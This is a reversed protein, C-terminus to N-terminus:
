SCEVTISWKLENIEPATGHVTTSGNVYVRLDLDLYTPSASSHPLKKLKEFAEIANSEYCKHKSVFQNRFYRLDEVIPDNCDVCIFKESAKYYVYKEFISEIENESEM